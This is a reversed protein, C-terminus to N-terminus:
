PYNGPAFIKSFKSDEENVKEGAEKINQDPTQKFLAFKEKLNSEGDLNVTDVHVMGGDQRATILLVMDASVEENRHV